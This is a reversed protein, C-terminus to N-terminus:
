SLGEGAHHREAKAWYTAYLDERYAILIDKDNMATNGLFASLMGQQMSVCAQSPHQGALKDSVAIVSGLVRRANQWLQRPRQGDGAQLAQAM